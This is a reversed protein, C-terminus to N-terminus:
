VTLLLALEPLGSGCFIPTDYNGEGHIPFRECKENLRKVDKYLRQVVLRFIFYFRRFLVRHVPFSVFRRSIVRVSDTLLTALNITWYLIM